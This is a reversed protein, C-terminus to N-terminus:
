GFDEKPEKYIHKSFKAVYLIFPSLFPKLVELLKIIGADKFIAGIIAEFVDGLIKPAKYPEIEFENMKFEKNFSHKVFMQMNHDDEKPSNKKVWPKEPTKSTDPVQFQGQNLNRNGMYLIYKHFGFLCM